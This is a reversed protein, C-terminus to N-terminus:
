SKAREKNELGLTLKFGTFLGIGAMLFITGPFAVDKEVGLNYHLVSAIFIGIGVGMLLLAVNLILIKWIPAAHEKKGRVFISADVGKEILALREKHRTSYHLYVMGFLTGFIILLVLAEEM